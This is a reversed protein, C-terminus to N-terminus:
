PQKLEKRKDMMEKRLSVCLFRINQLRKRARKGANVNNKEMAKLYDPEFENILAKMELLMKGMPEAKLEQSIVQIGTLVERVRKLAKLNGRKVFKTYDPELEEILNKLESIKRVHEFM